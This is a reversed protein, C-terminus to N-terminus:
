NLFNNLYFNVCKLTYEKREIERDLLSLRQWYLDTRIFTWDEISFNITKNFLEKNVVSLTRKSNNTKGREYYIQADYIKNVKQIQDKKDQDIM